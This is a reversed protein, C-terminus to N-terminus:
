FNGADLQDVMEYLARFVYWKDDAGESIWSKRKLM